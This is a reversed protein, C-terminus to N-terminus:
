AVAVKAAEKRNRSARSKHTILGISKPVPGSWRVARVFTVRGLDPVLHFSQGIKHRDTLLQHHEIVRRDENLM